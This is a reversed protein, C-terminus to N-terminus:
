YPDKYHRRYPQARRMALTTELEAQRSSYLTTANTAHVGRFPYYLYIYLRYLTYICAYVDRQM